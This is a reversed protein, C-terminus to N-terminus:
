GLTTYSDLVWGNIYKVTVLADVNAPVTKIGGVDLTFAGGGTRYIQFIDGNASANLAVTRNATLPSNWNQIDPDTGYTLTKDTDGVNTTNGIFNTTGGNIDTGSSDVGEARTFHTSQNDIKGRLFDLPQRAEWDKRCM